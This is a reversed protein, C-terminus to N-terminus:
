LCLLQAQGLGGLLQSLVRVLMVGEPIDLGEALQYAPPCHLLARRQPQRAVVELVEHRVVLRVQQLGVEGLLELEGGGLGGFREQVPQLQGCVHGQV